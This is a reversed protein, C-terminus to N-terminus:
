ECGGLIFNPIAQALIVLASFASIVTGAIGLRRDVRRQFWALSCGLLAVAISAMSVLLLSTKGHGACALPALAFDAELSAFWAIPALLLGAGLLTRRM